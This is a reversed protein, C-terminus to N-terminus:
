KGGAHLTAATNDHANAVIVGLQDTVLAAGYDAHDIRSNEGIQDEYRCAGSFM